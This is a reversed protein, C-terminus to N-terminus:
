LPPASTPPDDSSRGFFRKTKPDRLLGLAVGVPIGMQVPLVIWDYFHETRLVTTDLYLWFILPPFVIYAVVVYLGAPRRLFSALLAVSTLGAFSGYTILGQKSMVKEKSRMYWVTGVLILCIVVRLCLVSIPAKKV